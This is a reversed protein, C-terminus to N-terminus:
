RLGAVTKGKPYKVTYGFSLTKTENPALSLLWHMMGTAEDYESGGTEPSEVVIDKDNSVPLQDQLMLSINEKRTNRVTITYGFTERVNGGITQVSRFKKDQERKVVIKKDRGLSIDMTDKLNRVDISGQGVYNGEYFINTQGPLLNLDEWNTIRAELFADKAVLHQQGDSPITYPLAIDFTTNVGANDVAVYNNMSSTLISSAPSDHDILPMKYARVEAGTGRPPPAYSPPPYYISLYFPNLVPPQMREGPNGTSLTLHVNNWDVGSSQRINAKYSLTIPLNVDDAFIDYTPLWGADTIVYTVTISTQMAETAYLKIKLVGDPQNAKGQEEGLQAKLKTLLEDTKKLQAELKTKQNLYGEMRAGVLDLMKTLEASSLGTDSINWLLGSQKSLVIIKNHIQERNETILEMSDKIEKLQPSYAHPALYDNQFTVEEVTAGNTAGVTISKTNIDGAVNSFLLENEGKVLNVDASSVLEAGNLFVTAANIKLKKVPQAHLAVTFLCFLGAICLCLRIM